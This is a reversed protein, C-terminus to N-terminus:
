WEGGDLEKPDVKDHVGEGRKGQGGLGGLVIEQLSWWIPLLLVDDRLLHHLMDESHGHVLGNDEEDNKEQTVLENWLAFVDIIDESGITSSICLYQHIGVFQLSVLGQLSSDEVAGLLGKGTLEHVGGELIDSSGAM